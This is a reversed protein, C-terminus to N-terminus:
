LAVLLEGRFRSFRQATSYGNPGDLPLSIFVSILSSFIYDYTIWQAGQCAGCASVLSYTITNCKCLNSDDVGAPGTYQEGLPLPGQDFVPLSSVAETACELCLM